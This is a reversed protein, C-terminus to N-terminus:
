VQPKTIVLLEWIPLALRWRGSQLSVISIDYAHAQSLMHFASSKVAGGTEESGQEPHGM